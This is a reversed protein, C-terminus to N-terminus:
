RKRQFDKTRKKGPVFLIFIKKLSKFFNTRIPEDVTKIEKHPDFQYELTDEFIEFGTDKKEITLDISTLKECEMKPTLKKKSSQGFLIIYKNGKSTSVINQGM